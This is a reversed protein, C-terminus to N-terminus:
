INKKLEEPATDDKAEATDMILLQLDNIGINYPNSFDECLSDEPPNPLTSDLFIFWGKGGRSCKEHNGRVVIFPSTGLLNSSPTFFDANWTDWNDGHPSGECGSNGEPCKDQRYLYDGVHIVIDPSMGAVTNAITEFPWKNPDNCAQFVDDNKNLRCGTDGIIAIRKPNLIPLPVEFGEIFASKTNNPFLFDCVLIPFDKDTNSYREGMIVSNSITAKINSSTESETFFTIEPCSSGGTIARAITSGSPGIITFRSLTDANFEDCTIFSISIIAFILYKIIIM